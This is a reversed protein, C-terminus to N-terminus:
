GAKYRRPSTILDFSDVIRIRMAKRGAEMEARSSGSRMRLVSRALRENTTPSRLIITLRNQAPDSRVRPYMSTLASFLDELVAVKLGCRRENTPLSPLCTLM